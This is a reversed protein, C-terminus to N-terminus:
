LFFSKLFYICNCLCRVQLDKQSDNTNVLHQRIRFCRALGTICVNVAGAECIQLSAYLCRHSINLMARLTATFIDLISIVEVVSKSGQSASAARQPGRSMESAPSFCDYEDYATKIPTTSASFSSSPSHNFPTEMKPKSRLGSDFDGHSDVNKPLSLQKGAFKRKKKFNSARKHKEACLSDMDKSPSASDDTTAKRDIDQPSYTSSQSGCTMDNGWACTPDFSLEPFLNADCRQFHSFRDMDTQETTSWQEIM